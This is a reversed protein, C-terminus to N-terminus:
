GDLSKLLSSVIASVTKGEAKGRVQPMVCGMVKGMDQPGSAGTEEITKRALETVEEESMQAPMYELIIALEAEEKDVLDQRDGKRFAEISERRQNAQKGLLVAIDDDGLTTQSAIEQNRIESRLYRLASKRASDGRRLAAKLDEQLRDQLSM